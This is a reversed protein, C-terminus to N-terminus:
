KRQRPIRNQQDLLVMMIALNSLGARSHYVGPQQEIAEDTMQTTQVLHMHRFPGLLYIPTQEQLRQRQVRMELLWADPEEVSKQTM